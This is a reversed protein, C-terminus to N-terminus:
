TRMIRRSGSSARKPKKALADADLPATRGRPESRNKYFDAVAYIASAQVSKEPNKEVIMEILALAKESQPPMGLLMTLPQVM